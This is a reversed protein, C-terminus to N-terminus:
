GKSVDLPVKFLLIGRLPRSSNRYCIGILLAKRKQFGGRDRFPGVSRTRGWEREWDFPDPASDDDLQPHREQWGDDQSPIHMSPPIFSAPYGGTGYDSAELGPFSLHRCTLERCSILLNTQCRVSVFVLSSNHLSCQPCWPTLQTPHISNKAVVQGARQKNLIQHTLIAAWRHILCMLQSHHM